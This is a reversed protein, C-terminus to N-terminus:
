QVFLQPIKLVHLSFPHSAKIADASFNWEKEIQDKINTEGGRHNLFIILPTSVPVITLSHKGGRVKKPWFRIFFNIKLLLMVTKFVQM